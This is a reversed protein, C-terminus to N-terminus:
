TQVQDKFHLNTLYFVCKSTVCINRSVNLIFVVICSGLISALFLSTLGVFLTIRQRNSSGLTRSSLSTSLIACYCSIYLCFSSFFTSYLKSKKFPLGRCRGLERKELQSITPGFLWDLDTLVPQLSGLHSLSRCSERSYIHRHDM